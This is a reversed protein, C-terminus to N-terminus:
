HKKPAFSGLFSLSRKPHRTQTKRNVAILGFTKSFGTQWEFNDLLTWHLYGKVPIGDELCSKVGNMVTEIFAVRDEDKDTALGNETVILPIKLDEHVKRLVNELSQPYYEYGMQTRKADDSLKISGEKSVRKRTYNQVGLFDDGKIAPVYHTFEKAWEQRAYEEGGKIPQFDHLSLTLGVKIDPNIEHIAKKAEVHADMIMKDGENTRIGIFTQPDGTGFVSKNEEKVLEMKEMMSKPDDNLGVQVDSTKNKMMDKMLSAIQLGMNAENITCVYPILGGLHEIVYKVYRVFFDITRRDEWGYEEILWKPSTFHHMTVIPVINKEHCYELVDKYHATEKHDFRGKEPEIRAWEISFRYANLGAEAMLDIDEKYRNYHDVADLSPEKFTSNEMHEMAWYDSHVNNGEVQHAASSAGLLFPQDFRM